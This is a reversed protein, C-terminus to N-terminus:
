RRVKAALAVPCPGFYHAQSVRTDGIDAELWVTERPAFAKVRIVGADATESAVVRVVVEIGLGHVEIRLTQGTMATDLTCRALEGIM